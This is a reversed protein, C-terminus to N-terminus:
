PSEYDKYIIKALDMPLLKQQHPRLITEYVLQVEVLRLFDLENIIKLVQSSTFM